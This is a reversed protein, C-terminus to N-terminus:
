EDLVCRDLMEDEVYDRNACKGVVLEWKMPNIGNGPRKTTLMDETLIEGQRINRACIISKRAVSINQKESETVIKEEQGLAVEINRIAQVMLKLEKPELSCVHDPGDMNRDLTFHKEIVHAGKAVAAIAVEIGLTHDSYGVDVGIKEGLWNMANLNVDSMRTPYDTNCHLITVDPTGNERLVQIAEEIEQLTSMGCSMVVPKKTKAIHKLYPYNTIEGSPVKWFPVGLGDLFDISQIDFPTSLFAVGKEKCYDALEVFNEYPLLLKSLMEKQSTEMGINEIQYKSMKAFKSVIGELSATQFKVYDVQCEAAVDILKKAIQMDGNHNVGAEAIIIVKSM